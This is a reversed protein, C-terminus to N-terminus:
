PRNPTGLAPSDGQTGRYAAIMAQDREDRRHEVSDERASNTGDFDELDLPM